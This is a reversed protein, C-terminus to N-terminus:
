LLGVEVLSQSQTIIQYGVGVDAVHALTDLRRVYVLFRVCVRSTPNDFPQDAPYM